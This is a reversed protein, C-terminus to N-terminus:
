RVPRDPRSNATTTSPEPARRSAPLLRRFRPLIRADAAGATGDDATAAVDDDSMRIPPSLGRLSGPM